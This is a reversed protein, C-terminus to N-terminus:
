WFMPRLLGSRHIPVVGLLKLFYFSVKREKSMEAYTEGEFEFVPDWGFTGPGRAQVIRGETKGQFLVPEAGPGECYCFTCVATASKDEYAVLLNNLGVHGISDLFSKIYPGPLGNLATFELATDETLVPGNIIKSATLAKHLAIESITGQIEPIDASRSELTVLPGIISRVELLKNLNTTIFNLTLPRSSTM